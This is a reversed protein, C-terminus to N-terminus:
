EERRLTRMRRRLERLEKLRGRERYYKRRGLRFKTQTAGDQGPEVVLYVKWGAHAYGTPPPPSDLLGRGINRLPLSILLDPGGAFDYHGEIFFQVATSQVETRPIWVRGNEILFEGAVPAFSPQQFRKRMLAKKGITQLMPWEAVDTESFRFRIEGQTSDAM